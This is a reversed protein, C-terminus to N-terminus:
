DLDIGQRGKIAVSSTSDITISQNSKLTIGKKGLSFSSGGVTITFSDNELTMAASGLKLAIKSDDLCLMSDSGKSLVSGSKNLQLKNGHAKETLEIGAENMILSNKHRDTLSIGHDGSNQLLLTNGDIDPTLTSEGPTQLCIAEKKEENHFSLALGPKVVIGCDPKKEANVAFPKKAKSTYLSGLIVAHRPDDNLFGVLVEDGEQPSFVVGREHGADAFICRAWLSQQESELQPLLVRIRDQRNPDTKFKDVRGIQLGNIGPLLNAAPASHVAYYDAFSVESLGFHLRTSIKDADIQIDLGSILTSSDIEAVNKIEIRELLQSAVIGTTDLWGQVQSLKNRALLGKGWDQAETDSGYVGAFRHQKDTGPKPSLDHSILGALDSATAKFLQPKTADHPNHMGTTMEGIAQQHLSHISLRSIHAQELKIEQGVKITTPDVMHINHGELMVVLGNAQARCVLFDWDSCEHQVLQEQENLAASINLTLDWRKYGDVVERLIDAEPKAAFVRSRRCRTMQQAPHSLRIKYTVKQQEFLKLKETVIGSFTLSDLEINVAKDSNFVKSDQGLTLEAYPIQNIKNVIRLSKFLSGIPMTEGNLKFIPQAPNM